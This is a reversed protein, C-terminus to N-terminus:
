SPNSCAYILLIVTQLHIKQGNATLTSIIKEKKEHCLDKHLECQM